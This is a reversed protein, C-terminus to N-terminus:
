PHRNRTADAWASRRHRDATFRLIDEAMLREANASSLGVSIPDSIRENFSVVFHVCALGGSWPSRVSAVRSGPERPM